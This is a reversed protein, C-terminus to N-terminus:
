IINLRSLEGASRRELRNSDTSDLLTRVNWCALHLSTTSIKSTHRGCSFIGMSRPLGVPYTLFCAKNLGGKRPREGHPALLAIGLSPQKTTCSAASHHQQRWTLLLRGIDQVAQMCSQFQPKWHCRGGTFPPALKASM